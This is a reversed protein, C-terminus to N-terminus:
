VSAAGAAKVIESLPYVLRFYGQALSKEGGIKINLPAM